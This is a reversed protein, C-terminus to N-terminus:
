IGDGAGLLRESGDSKYVIVRGEAVLVLKHYPFIEASIDTDEAMSFISISNDGGYIEKSVTCGAIPENDRAISFVRGVVEKM